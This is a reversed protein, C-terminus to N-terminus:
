LTKAMCVTFPIMPEPNESEPYFDIYRFGLGEYMRRAPGFAALTDLYIEKAGMARADEMAQLTLDRGLGSGRLEPRVYLRKMEAVQARIMRVFVTAVLASSADRVLTTRGRPPVYAELHNLTASLLTETEIEPGGDARLTLVVIELYEALLGSLGPVNELTDPQDFQATVGGPWRAARGLAM